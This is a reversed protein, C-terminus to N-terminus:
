EDKQQSTYEVEESNGESIRKDLKTVASRRFSGFLSVMIRSAIVVLYSLVAVAAGIYVISFVASYELLFLAPNWLVFRAVYAITGALFDPIYEGLPSILLLVTGVFGSLMIWRKATSYAIRIYPYDEVVIGSPFIKQVAELFDESENVSSTAMSLLIGIIFIPLAFGLSRAAGVLILVIIMSSSALIFGIWLSALLTNERVHNEFMATIGSPRTTTIENMVWRHSFCETYETRNLTSLKELDFQNQFHTLLPAYSRLKRFRWITVVLVFCGTLFLALAVEMTEYGELFSGIKWSAANRGVGIFMYFDAAM